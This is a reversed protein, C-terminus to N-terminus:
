LRCYMGTETTFVDCLQDYYVGDCEAIVKVKTGRVSLFRMLYVDRPTLTIDVMNVKKDNSGIKLVIGDPKLLAHKLGTMAAFRNGGLQKLITRGVNNEKTTAKM